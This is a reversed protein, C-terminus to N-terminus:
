FINFKIIRSERLFFFLSKIRIEVLMKFFYRRMNYYNYYFRLRSIIQFIPIFM